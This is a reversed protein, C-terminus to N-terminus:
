CRPRRSTLRLVDQSAAALEAITRVNREAEWRPALAQLLRATTLADGRARHRTEPPLGLRVALAALSNGGPEFLSRALGLTDLVPNWLPPRGARRLLAALFPLDFAAHHFVLVRGAARRALEAAVAAGDPAGRVMADDIGHIAAADAPISRGPDVLTDWAEAIEGGDLSVCAVEIVAHGQAPDFGTTETDIAALRTGALLSM